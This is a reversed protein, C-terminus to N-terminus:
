VTSYGRDGCHEALERADVRFRENLWLYRVGNLQEEGTIRYEGPALSVRLGTGLAWAPTYREFTCTSQPEPARQIM